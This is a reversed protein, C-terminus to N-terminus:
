VYVTISSGAAESLASRGRSMPKNPMVSCVAVRYTVVAREKRDDLWGPRTSSTM